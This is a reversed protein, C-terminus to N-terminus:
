DDMEVEWSYMALYLEQPIKDKYEDAMNKIYEEKYKKYHAFAEEETNYLGLNIGNNEKDNVRVRYRIGVCEVCRVNRSTKKRYAFLSNIRQPVFICTQPSYIKNNKFLIDKDLHMVEDGVNYFNEDYWKKFNSYYKWEDCVECDVYNLHKEPDGYCREIMGIWKSYSNLTHGEEDVTVSDTIGVGLVIGDKTKIYAKKYNPNKINGKKFNNYTAVTEYGDEFLIHCRMCNEYKIIKMSLGQNNISIEDCRNTRIVGKCKGVKGTTSHPFNKNEIMGKLFNDYNKNRSIYGDEFEVDIDNSKNYKIITMKLGQNNITSEGVRDNRVKRM